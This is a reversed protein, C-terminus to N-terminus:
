VFLKFLEHDFPGWIDCVNSWCKYSPSETCKTFRRRDGTDEQKSTWWVRQMQLKIPVRPRITLCISMPM